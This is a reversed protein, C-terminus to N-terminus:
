KPSTTQTIQGGRNGEIQVVVKVKSGDKLNLRSRLHVPAILEVVSDDYHTRGILIVAGEVGNITARYYRVGGFSRGGVEFGRIMIGSHAELEKKKVIQSPALRLNLTGPHPRFGLYHQFHRRYDPQDVYYAGEGFGTFVRGTFTLAKPEREEFARKLTLYVRQLEKTGEEMIKIEVGNVSSQRTILGQRELEILHRSATQQSISLSEALSTTSVTVAGDIAGLEALKYLTPWLSPKM